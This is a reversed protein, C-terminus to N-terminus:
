AKRLVQNIQQRIHDPMPAAKQRDAEIKLLVPDPGSHQAPVTTRAIDAAQQAFSQRENTKLWSAELGQSGRACWISLFANLTVGAKEAEKRASKLVTETVPAKKAKRLSLWDEWEQLGVDSPCAVITAKKKHETNQTIHETNHTANGESQTQLANADKQKSWRVKASESAKQSKDGAKALEKNARHHIWGDPTREFYERLVVAICDSHSRMRIQRAVELEDLPIPSEHLYYWDLLRRYTLDEMESLHETHSKYDGINFQYYHMEAVGYFFGQFFRV